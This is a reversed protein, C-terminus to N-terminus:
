QNNTCLAQTVEDDEDDDASTYDYSLRPSINCGRSIYSNLKNSASLILGLYPPSPTLPRSLYEPHYQVAVYYPHDKLELMEMRQGDEDHGVFTMNKSEFEEILEPNVEYRHRHREEVYSAGKYLKRLISDKTKFITKRKGLRMTGGMNGPNHEPMEIVVPHSTSPNFEKSNADKWGLVNRAFEIVAVQMGLCVGLYPIKRTRAWEAAAIKGDTGRCGFGGPVLVGQSDCLTKWAEHFKVPDNTKMEEELHTAEIWKICLKLQYLLAAHRLAKIVSIYADELKTYKGVIAIVVPPYPKDFREALNRWKYITQPSSTGTKIPLELRKIIFDLVAQQKLLLPVRYISTCDHIAVVQKPAVHCFNSIKQKVSEELPTVSRCAIIDPSLGFGRLQRVSHQTPKTKQEGTNGPQPVLSVHVNCFNESGVTFQFQRFAEVFPMGEIDGITGGLEIVCVQPTLGSGDVPIRAVRQVWAQIADTVHPVVQVTKGLFVGKREQEIVHQYIKGTTINNDRHLTIDLFREYNGLDLDVEGGDDLVFVEGHEYPSFTGADINLYPDIKIATVRLGYSKLLTGISSTIVGKGVGSIVGGSVLIYKIPPSDELEAAM